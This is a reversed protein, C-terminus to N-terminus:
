VRPWSLGSLPPAGKLYGVCACTDIAMEFSIEGKPKELWKAMKGMAMANGIYVM